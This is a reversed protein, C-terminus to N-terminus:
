KKGDGGGSKLTRRSLIKIHSVRTNVTDNIEKCLSVMSSPHENRILVANRLDINPKKFKAGKFKMTTVMQRSNENRSSM